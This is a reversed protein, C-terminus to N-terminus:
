SESLLQKIISMPLFLKNTKDIFKQFGFKEYFGSARSSLSDVIVAMSGLENSLRGARILADALLLEGLGQGQLKIGIAM